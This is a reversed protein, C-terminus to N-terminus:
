QNSLSQVMSHMTNKVQNIAQVAAQGAVVVVAGVGATAAGAGAATAGTAGATAASGGAKAVTSGATKAATGAAKAGASSASKASAGATNASTKSFAKGGVEEGLGGVGKEKGVQLASEGYSYQSDIRNPIGDADTDGLVNSIETNSAQKIPLNQGKAFDMGKETPTIVGGDINVMGQKELESFNNLVTDKNPGDKISNIDLQDTYNFVGMDQETGNFEVYALDQNQAQVDAVSQNLQDQEFQKCFSESQTLERGKDTLHIDKNEDITLYGEDRANLINQQTAKYVDENPCHKKVESCNMGDVGAIDTFKGTFKMEKADVTGKEKLQAVKAKIEKYTNYISQTSQKRQFKKQQREQKRQKRKAEAEQLVADNEGFDYM